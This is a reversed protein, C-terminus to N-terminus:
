HGYYISDHAVPAPAGPSGSRVTPAAQPGYGSTDRGAVRAEAAQIDDPYYPSAVGPHYGAKELQVLEARVQARTVPQNTQAFAAFSATLATAAVVATILSKM